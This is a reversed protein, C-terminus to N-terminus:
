EGAAKVGFNYEQYENSNSTSNFGVAMKRSSSSDLHFNGTVDFPIPGM